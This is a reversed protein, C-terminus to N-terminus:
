WGTAIVAQGSSRSLAYVKRSAARHPREFAAAATSLLDLNGLAMWNGARSGPAFLRPTPKILPTDNSTKYRSFVVKIVAKLQLESGRSGRESRCRQQGVHM